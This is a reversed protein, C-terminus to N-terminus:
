FSFSPVILFRDALMASGEEFLEEVIAAEGLKNPVVTTSEKPRWGFLWAKFKNKKKM